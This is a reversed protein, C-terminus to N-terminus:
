SPRHGFGIGVKGGLTETSGVFQLRSAVVLLGNFRVAAGDGGEGSGFGVCAAAPGIGKQAVVFVSYLVALLGDANIGVEAIGVVIDTGIQDFLLFPVVGDRPEFFGHDGLAVFGAAVGMEIQAPDIFMLTFPLLGILAVPLGIRDIVLIQRIQSAEAPYRGGEM